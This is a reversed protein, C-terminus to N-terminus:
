GPIPNSRYRRDEEIERTEDPRADLALLSALTEQLRSTAASDRDRREADRADRQQRRYLLMSTGTTLGGGLLVGVLPLLDQLVSM